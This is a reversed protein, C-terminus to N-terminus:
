QRRKEIDLWKQRPPCGCDAWRRLESLSWLKRDGARVPPPLSGQADMNHVTRESVGLLRATDTVGILLPEIVPANTTDSNM